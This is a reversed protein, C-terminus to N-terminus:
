VRRGDGRVHSLHQRLSPLRLADDTVEPNLHFEHASQRQIYRSHTVPLRFKSVLFLPIKDGNAPVVFEPKRVLYGEIIDQWNRSEEVPQVDRYTESQITKGSDGVRHMTYERINFEAGSERMAAYLEEKELIVQPILAGGYGPNLAYMLPQTSTVTEAFTIPTLFQVDDLNRLMGQQKMEEVLQNLSDRPDRSSHNYIRDVFTVRWAPVDRVHAMWYHLLKLEACCGGSGYFVIRNGALQLNERTVNEQMEKHGIGYIRKSVMRNLTDTLESGAVAHQKRRETARFRSRMITQFDGGNGVVQVAEHFQNLEAADFNEVNDNVLFDQYLLEAPSISQHALSNWITQQLAAEDPSVGSLTDEANALRAVDPSSSVPSSPQVDALLVQLAQRLAEDEAARNRELSLRQARQLDNAYWVHIILLGVVMFFFTALIANPNINM